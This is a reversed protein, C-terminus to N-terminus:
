ARCNTRRQGSGKLLSELGADRGAQTLTLRDILCGLEAADIKAGPAACALGHLGADGRGVLRFGVCRRHVGALSLEAWEVPGQSTALNRSAELREIVAGFNAAAEAMEVFLSGRPSPKARKWLEVRLTPAETRFDGVSYADRRDGTAAVVHAEYLAHAGEGADITFLPALKPDLTEVLDPARLAADSIPADPKTSIMYAAGVLGAAAALGFAVRTLWGRARRPEPVDETWYPEFPELGDQTIIDSM